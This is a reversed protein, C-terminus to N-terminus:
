EGGVGAVVAAYLRDAAEVAEPDLPRAAADVEPARALEDDMFALLPAPMAGTGMERTRAKAVLLEACRAAVEAPPDCEALLTPFHMPPLRREPHLRMWRLAVAPRLAYFINKLAVEVQGDLYVARQRRSLHLYHSAMRERDAWAEAFALMRSRFVADAAYVIPSQLWEVVVANGKILM